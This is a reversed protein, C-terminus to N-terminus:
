YHSKLWRRQISYGYSGVKNLAFGTLVMSFAILARVVYYLFSEVEGSFSMLDSRGVLGLLYIASVFMLFTGFKNLVRYLVMFRKRIGRNNM